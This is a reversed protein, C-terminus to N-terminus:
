KDRAFGGVIYAEYGMNNLKTLIKLAIKYM